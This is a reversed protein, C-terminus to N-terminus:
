AQSRWSDVMAHAAEFYAALEAEPAGSRMLVGVGLTLTVLLAVAHPVQQASIEGLAVARDLPQRIADGLQLRFDALVEKADGARPGLEIMTNIAFCGQHGWESLSEAYQLELAQHLDALGGTGAALLGAIGNMREAEYRALSQRFLSEKSGFTNYVSSANLGTAREIDAMSSGEYGRERFVEIVQDLVDDVDFKRPRGPSRVGAGQQTMVEHYRPGILIQLSRYM